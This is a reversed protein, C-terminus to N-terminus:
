RGLSELQEQCVKLQKRTNKTESQEDQLRVEFQELKTAAEAALEQEISQRLEAALEEHLKTQELLQSETAQAQAELENSSHTNNSWRNTSPSPRTSNDSREQARENQQQVQEELEALQAASQSSSSLKLPKASFRLMKSSSRMGQEAALQLEAQRARM